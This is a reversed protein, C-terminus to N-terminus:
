LAETKIHFKEIYEPLVKIQREEICRICLYAAGVGSGAIPIRINTNFDCSECIGKNYNGDLEIKM